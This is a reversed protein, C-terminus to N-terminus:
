KTSKAPASNWAFWHSFAGTYITRGDKEVDAWLYRDKYTCQDLYADIRSDLVIKELVNDAKGKMQRQIFANFNAKSPRSLFAGAALALSLIVILLTKMGQKM